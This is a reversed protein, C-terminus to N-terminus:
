TLSAAKIGAWTEEHSVLARRVSPRAIFHDVLRSINPYDNISRPYIELWIAQIGFCFDMVCPAGGFFWPGPELAQEIVELVKGLRAMSAKQLDRQAAPTEFYHEPHFQILVEPQLTTALYHLWQLFAGRRPAGPPIILEAEPHREALYLAIAGSEYMTGEPGALAPVRCHPSAALFEPDPEDAYLTVWHIRYDAGIEELIAHAGMAYTNPACYLTYEPHVESV